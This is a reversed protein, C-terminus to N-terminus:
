ASDEDEDEEEDEGEVRDKDKVKVQAKAKGKAKGKAKAKGRGRGEDKDENKDEADEVDAYSDVEDESVEKIQTSSSVHGQSYAAELSMQGLTETVSCATAKAVSHAAAEAIAKILKRTNFLLRIEDTAFNDVQTSFKEVQQKTLQINVVLQTSNNEVRVLCKSMTHFLISNSELTATVCKSFKVIKDGLGRVEKKLERMGEKMDKADRKAQQFGMKAQLNSQDIKEGQSTITSRIDILIDLPSLPKAFDKDSSSVSVKRPSNTKDSTSMEYDEKQPPTREKYHTEFYHATHEPNPSYVQSHVIVNTSPGPGHANTSPGSVYCQAGGPYAAANNPDYLAHTNPGVSSNYTPVGSPNYPTAGSYANASVYTNSHAPVNTPDYMNAPANQDYINGTNPGYAAPATQPYHAQLSPDNTNFPLVPNASPAFNADFHPSSIYGHSHAM